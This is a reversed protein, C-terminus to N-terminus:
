EIMRAWIYGGGDIIQELWSHGYSYPRGFPVEIDWDIPVFPDSWETCAKVTYAAPRPNTQTPTEVTVSVDCRLGAAIGGVIALALSLSTKARNKM